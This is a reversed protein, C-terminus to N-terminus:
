DEYVSFAEEKPVRQKIITTRPVRLNQLIKRLFAIAEHLSVELDIEVDIITKGMGSGGGTVEGIKSEALAEELPDEIEDRGEFGSELLDASKFVIEFFGPEMNNKNQQIKM